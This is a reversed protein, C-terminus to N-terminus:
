SGVESEGLLLQQFASRMPALLSLDQGVRNRLLRSQVETGVHALDLYGPSPGRSAPKTETAPSLPGPLPVISPLHEHGTVTPPPKRVLRCTTTLTDGGKYVDGLDCNALVMRESGDPYGVISGPPLADREPAFEGNLYREITARVQVARAEGLVNPAKMARLLDRRAVDPFFETDISHLKTVLGCSNFEPLDIMWDPPSRRATETASSSLPCVWARKQALLYENSVVLFPRPSFAKAVDTSNRDIKVSTGAHDPPSLGIIQIPLTSPDAYWGQGPVPPDPPEKRPWRKQQDAYWERKAIHFLAWVLHQDPSSPKREDEKKKM